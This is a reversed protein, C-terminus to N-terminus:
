QFSKALGTFSRTGGKLGEPFDHTYTKCIPM